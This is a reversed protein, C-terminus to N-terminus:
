HKMESERRYFPLADDPIGEPPGNLLDYPMIEVVRDFCRARLMPQIATITARAIREIDHSSSGVLIALRQRGSDSPSSVSLMYAEGVSPKTSYLDCLIALLWGPVDVLTAYVMGIADNSRKDISAVVGQDLLAAIEEPYLVGGGHNPNFMFSAGRASEFLERGRIAVVRANVGPPPVAKAKSTFVPIAQFGAPHKFMMLQFRDPDGKPPTHVYLEADLLQRIFRAELEPDGRVMEFMEDITNGDAM